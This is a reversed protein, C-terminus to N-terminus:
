RVQWTGMRGLWDQWAMSVDSLLFRFKHGAALRYSTHGDLNSRCASSMEHKCARWKSAMPSPTWCPRDGPPRLKVLAHHPFRTSLSSKWPWTQVRSWATAVIAFHIVPKRPMRTEVSYSM